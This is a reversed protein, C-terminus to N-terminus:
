KKAPATGGGTGTPAVPAAPAGNITVPVTVATPAVDPGLLLEANYPATSHVANAFAVHLTVPTNAPVAGSPIGTITLDRGQVIDVGVPNGAATDASSVAFGYVWVEYEGAPPAILTVEETAGAAGTSAGVVQFTGDSRKRAVFLDIDEDPGVQPLTFTARSAHDGILIGQVKASATSPDAESPDDQKAHVTFSKPQSLGFADAKLGPLALSSNVVIDFSGTGDAAADTTVASPNV